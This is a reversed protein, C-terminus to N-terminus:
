CHFARQDFAEYEHAFSCPFFNCAHGHKCQETKYKQPHYLLELRNRAYKCTNGHMCRGYLRTQPCLKPQYANEYPNRRVSASSHAYFCSKDDCNRGNPCLETCYEEIVRRATQLEPSNVPTSRQSLVEMGEVTKMMKFVFALDEEHREDDSGVLM